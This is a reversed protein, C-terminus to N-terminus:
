IPVPVGTRQPFGAAREATAIAAIDKIGAAWTVPGKTLLLDFAVRAAQVLDRAEKARGGGTLAGAGFETGAPPMAPGSVMDKLWGPLEPKTIGGKHVRDIFRQWWDKGLDLAHAGPKYGVAKELASFTARRTGKSSAFPGAFHYWLAKRPGGVPSVSPPLPGCTSWGFPV